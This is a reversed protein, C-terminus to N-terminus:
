RGALQRHADFAAVALGIALGFYLLAFRWREEVALENAAVESPSQRWARVVEPAAALAILVLLPSPSWVFTAALAAAGAIWLNRSFAQAIRGGDLPRLPILNFLNLFFGAYALALWLETGSERWLLYCLYAGLTGLLPGALAVEAETRPHLNGAPLAIWAGVFPIFVPAGVQLGARRAALAHGLEHIFILVVFGLAYRWGYLWSYTLVSLAMTGVTLAVKGLKAAALLALLIKM